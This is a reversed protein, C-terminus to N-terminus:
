ADEKELILPIMAPNIIYLDKGQSHPCMGVVQCLHDPSLTVNVVKDLLENIGEECMKDTPPPMRDCIDKAAQQIFGMHKNIFRNLTEAVELCLTCMISQRQDGHIIKLALIESAPCMGIQPLACTGQPSVASDFYKEIGDVIMKSIGPCMAQQSKNVFALCLGNISNYLQGRTKASEVADKFKQVFFKCFACRADVTLDKLQVGEDQNKTIVADQTRHMLKSGDGDACISLLVVFCSIILFIRGDVMKDM